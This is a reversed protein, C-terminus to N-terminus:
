KLTGYSCTDIGAVRMHLTLSEEKVGRKQTIVIPVNASCFGLAKAVLRYHGAHLSQFGFEGRTDLETTMLLKHESESFIGVCVKSSVVIGEDDTGVGYKAVGYVRSVKLPRPDVQNHNEYTMPAECTESAAASLDPAAVLCTVALIALAYAEFIM